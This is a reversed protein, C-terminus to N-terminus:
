RSATREGTRFVSRRNWRYADESYGNVAPRAEGYSVVSFRSAPIGLDSLYGTVEEARRKGLLLNYEESGQEDCHGEVTLRGWKPNASIARANAQLAKRSEAGLSWVDLDFYVTELGPSSETTAPPLTEAERPGGERWESDEAVQWGRSTSQCGLAGLLCVAALAAWRTANSARM